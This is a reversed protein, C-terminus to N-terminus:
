DKDSLPPVSAWGQALLEGKESLRQRASMSARKASAPAAGLGRLVFATIEEIYKASGSGSILRRIGEIIAGATLDVAADISEFNFAGSALGQSLNTTVGHLAPNYGGRLHNIHAAFLGWRPEAAARFLILQIANALRDLPDPFAALITAYAEATEDALKNGLEAVADELSPFYKYFTGRSVNAERIVDDIVAPAGEGNGPYVSLVANLLHARTRERRERAVRIRHDEQGEPAVFRPM